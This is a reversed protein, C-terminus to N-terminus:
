FKLGSEAVNWWPTNTYEGLIWLKCTNMLLNSVVTIIWHTLDLESFAAHIACENMKDRVCDQAITVAKAPHTRLNRWLTSTHPKPPFHGVHSRSVQILWKQKATHQTPSSLLFSSSYRHWHTRDRPGWFSVWFPAIQVINDSRKKGNAHSLEQLFVWSLNTCDCIFKDSFIFSSTSFEIRPNVTFWQRYTPEGLLGASVPSKPSEATFGETWCPKGVAEPLTCVHLKAKKQCVATSYLLPWDLNIDAPRQELNQLTSHLSTTCIHMSWKMGGRPKQRTCHVVNEQLQAICPTITPPPSTTPLVNQFTSVDHADIKFLGQCRICLTHKWLKATKSVRKTLVTDCLTDLISWPSELVNRNYRYNWFIFLQLSLQM